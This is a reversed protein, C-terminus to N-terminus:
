DLDALTVEIGGVVDACVNYVYASITALATLLIAAFVGFLASFGFVQGVSILDGGSSSGDATVLTGFSSNMQDWVGMGDLIGFLVAVAIMWVFFGVVALVGTVKFISWPDVRRVQVAARLPTGIGSAPIHRVSARDDASGVHHIADLDPKVDGPLHEPVAGKAARGKEASGAAAPTSGTGAAAAGTVASGTVLGGGLPPKASTQPPKGSTQSPRPGSAPAGQPAGGAAPKGAAPKGAGSPGTPPTKGAPPTKGPQAGGAQANGAQANGAQANGPQPKGPQPKGPQQAVGGSPPGASAGGAAQGATPRAPAPDPTGSTPTQGGHGPERQSAGGGAPMARTPAGAAGEQGVAGRLPGSGPADPGLAGAAKAVDGATLGTAATKEGRKWPPPVRGSEPKDGDPENPTTM